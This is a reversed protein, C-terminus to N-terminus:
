DLAEQVIDTTEAIDEINQTKLVNYPTKLWGYDKKIIHGITHIDYKQINDM